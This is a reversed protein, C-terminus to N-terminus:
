AYIDSLKSSVISVNEIPCCGWGKANKLKCCTQDDRCRSKRDPCLQEGNVTSMLTSIFDVSNLSDGDDDNNNGNNNVKDSYLLQGSSNRM